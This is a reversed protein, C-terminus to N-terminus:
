ESARLLHVQAVSAMAVNLGLERQGGMVANGFAGHFARVAMVRVASGVPGRQPLAAPLGARLAVDFLSSRKDEFVGRHFDFATRGTVSRAVRETGLLGIQDNEFYRHDSRKITVGRREGMMAAKTLDGFFLMAKTTQSALTIPLKQAIVVDFGLLRKQFRGLTQPSIKTKM